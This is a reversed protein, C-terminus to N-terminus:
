LNSIDVWIIPQYKAELILLNNNIDTRYKNFHERLQSLTFKGAADKQMEPIQTYKVYSVPSNSGKLIAYGQENSERLIQTSASFNFKKTYVYYEKYSAIFVKDSIPNDEDMSEVENANLVYPKVTTPILNNFFDTNLFKRLSCNNWGGVINISSADSNYNSDYGSCSLLEKYLLMVEGQTKHAVFWEASDEGFTIVSGVKADKVRQIYYKPIIETILAQADKYKSDIKELLNYASIYDHQEMASIAKNYNVTPYVLNVYILYVLIFIITCTCLAISIIKASRKNRETKEDREKKLKNEALVCQKRLDNTDKYGIIKDLIEIASLYDDIESAKHIISVAKQYLIESNYSILKQRLKDNAFRLIKKYYANNSLEIKSNYLDEVKNVQLELLMKGIYADALEANVNLAKEFFSDAKEWENDELAMYGRELLAATNDIPLVANNQVFSSAPEDANIIKKIGHILDQMFGLKSMDQAQLHSFEEPLNYPDMDRYAPILIKRAGNKILALYRSWENKVWVANFYEPKTGLVVMVKASNLAAFIYPEYATGLKDELTIRSFFVKYGERVLEHYLETALVSDPTRLGNADSEKYCIFVDFPEEQSSIALIGKQIDNIVKAEQEYIEKQYGDAYQLASKYDEDDFISTFQARNVTPIRKHSSPDEVYEIGYRCLVLSWYTEADTNDANLIQEYLSIAKDFENNRRFHNARDYLNAKREDDLKPLTQKTGCYQCVAVTEHNIELTGGCMKCKFVAM